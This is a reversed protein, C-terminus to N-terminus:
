ALWRMSSLPLSNKFAGFSLLDVGGFFDCSDTFDTGTLINSSSHGLGEEWSLSVNGALAVCEVDAKVEAPMVQMSM